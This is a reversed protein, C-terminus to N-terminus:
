DGGLPLDNAVIAYRGLDFALYDCKDLLKRIVKADGVTPRIVYEEAGDDLILQFTFAGAEGREIETYSAQYDTIQRVQIAQETREEPDAM